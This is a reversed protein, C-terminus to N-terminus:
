VLYSLEKALQVIFQIFQKALGEVVLWLGAVCAVGAATLLFVVLAKFPNFGNIGKICMFVLIVVWAYTVYVVLNYLSQEQLTLVQSVIALPLQLFIFPVHCYAGGIVADRLRAEGYMISTVGYSVISCVVWPLIAWLIEKGWNIFDISVGSRYIFSTCLKSLCRTVTYILMIIFADKYKGQGEYRIDEFGDGPHLAVYGMKKIFGGVVTFFTKKDPNKPHKKRYRKMVAKGVLLIVCLSVIVTAIISFYDSLFNARIEEYSKSAWTFDEATEFYDYSEKYKEKRWLIQGISQLALVYFNDQNKVDTWQAFANDSPDKGKEKADVEEYIGDSYNKNAKHVLKCFETPKFITLTSNSVSTGDDKKTNITGGNVVYINGENDVELSKPINYQGRGNGVAGFVFLNRGWEDYEYIRGYTQDIIFTNLDKDVAVDIFNQLDTTNRLIGTDSFDYGKYLVDTGAPNIKRMQDTAYGTTTAYVYGDYMYINNFTYPLKVVSGKRSERSWLVRVITDWLGLAVKNTGYYKRFEGDSSLQLIGNSDGVSCVYIYGKDDKVVRQPQYNFDASLIESAPQPYAFRFNGYKTFEVLRKNGYDCVLITGDTDVFVCSPSSLKSGDEEFGKIEFAFSFDKNLVVIRDHGTDSIYIREDPGIFIDEPALFTGDVSPDDPAFNNITKYVDYAEPTPLNSSYNDVKSMFYNAYPTSANASICFVSTVLCCVALMISFYKKFNKM